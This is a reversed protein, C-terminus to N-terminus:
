GEVYVLVGLGGVTPNKKELDCKQRFCFFNIFIGFNFVLVLYLLKVAFDVTSHTRATPELLM